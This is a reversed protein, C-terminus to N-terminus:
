RITEIHDLSIEGGPTDADAQLVPIMRYVLSEERYANIVAVRDTYVQINGFGSRQFNAVAWELGQQRSAFVVKGVAVNGNENSFIALWGGAQEEFDDRAAM